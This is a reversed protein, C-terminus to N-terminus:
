MQTTIAGFFFFFSNRAKNSRGRDVQLFYQLYVKKRNFFIYFFFCLNNSM